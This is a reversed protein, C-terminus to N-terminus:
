MVKVNRRALSLVGANQSKYKNIDKKRIVPADTSISAGTRNAIGNTPMAGEGDEELEKKKAKLAEQVFITEEVLIVNSELINLL